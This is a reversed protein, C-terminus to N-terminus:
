LEVRHALVERGQVQQGGRCKNEMELWFVEEQQQGLVGKQEQSVYSGVGGQEIGCKRHQINSRGALDHGQQNGQLRLTRRRHYYKGGAGHTDHVEYGNDTVGNGPEERECNAHNQRGQVM